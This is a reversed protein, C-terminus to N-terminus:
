REAIARHLLAADAQLIGYLSEVERRTRHWPGSNDIVHDALEAKREVPMQARIRAGAEDASLDGRDMIRRLQVDRSCTVVVLRDFTTHRGAEVLLAADYVIMDASGARAIAHFRQESEAIVLPHVIQELDARAGDDNFVLSGLARRDIGGADHRLHLGFREMVPAVAAGGEALLEHVIDDADIVPAGLERLMGGVTSKGTGIGGTLGVLLTPPGGSGIRAVARDTWDPLPGSREGDGSM